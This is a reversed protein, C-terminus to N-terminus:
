SPQCQPLPNQILHAIAKLTGHLREAAHGLLRIVLLGAPGTTIGALIGPQDALFSEIASRSDTGTTILSAQHTYNELQGLANVPLAAPNLYQNELLALRHHIFVETRSHYVSLTFVEGSLKRGCTLVEGWILQSKEALVIRNRCKVISGTHPVVPHPLWVFRAGEGIDVEMSQTAGTKMTFLRQYSQTHLELRSGADLTVNLTQTDGDLIGPSSCMLMLHLAPDSKDETINAIKFPPNFWASALRSIGNRTTIHIQVTSNM